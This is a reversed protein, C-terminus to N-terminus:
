WVSLIEGDKIKIIKKTKKAIEPDHTIIIVTKWSANIKSFLELIEAGTQSDLAWTPEDALIIEPNIVLARAIAVRQSQWGSLENPRNKLKDGLWVKELYEKALKKAEKSAYWLYLLPMMVQDLAPIRPLLSYNQFIFWIKKARIDSMKSDKLWTIKVGSLTYEGSTPTDLMGIINMLTSKWSGSPGVISVFDGSQIEVNIGKLIHIVWAKGLNYDKTINKLSLM